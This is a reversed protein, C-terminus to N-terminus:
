LHDPEEEEETCVIYEGLHKTDNGIYVRWGKRILQDVMYGTMYAEWKEPIRLTFSSGLLFLEDEKGNVYPSQDRMNNLLYVVSERDLSELNWDPSNTTGWDTVTGAFNFNRNGLNRLRLSQIQSRLGRYGPWNVQGPPCHFAQYFQADTYLYKCDIIPEIVAVHSYKCMGAIGGIPNVSWRKDGEGYEGMAPYWATFAVPNSIRLGSENYLAPDKITIKGYDGFSSHGVMEPSFGDEEANFVRNFVQEAFANSFDRCHRFDANLFFQDYSKQNLYSFKFCDAITTPVIGFFNGGDNGSKRGNTNIKLKCPSFFVENKKREPNTTTGRAGIFMAHCNNIHGSVINITPNIKAYAFAARANIGGNVSNTENGQITMVVEEIDEPVHNGVNQFEDISLNGLNMNESGFLNTIEGAIPYRKLTEVLHRIIAKSHDNGPLAYLLRLYGGFLPNYANYTTNDSELPSKYYLTSPYAKMERFIPLRTETDEDGRRLKMSFRTQFNAPNAYAAGKNELVWKHAEPSTIASAYTSTSELAGFIMMTAFDIERHYVHQDESFMDLVLREWPNGKYSYRFFKAGAWTNQVSDCYLFDARELKPEGRFIMNPMGTLSTRFDDALATGPDNGEDTRTVFRLLSLDEIGSDDYFSFVSSIYDKNETDMSM